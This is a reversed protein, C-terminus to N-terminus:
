RAAPAAIPFFGTVDRLRGQDDHAACSVGDQVPTGAGDVLHWHALSRGHHADVRAIAFRFGPFGRQFAGMYDSFADQGQM